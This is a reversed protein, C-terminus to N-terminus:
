KNNGMMESLLLKKREQFSIFKMHVRLMVKSLRLDRSKAKYSHVIFEYGKKLYGKKLIEDIDIPRIHICGHSVYLHKLKVKQGQATMAETDPSSHIFEGHIKEKGKDLKKNNNRDKYYFFTLHGFDNFVWKDPLIRKGYLDDYYDMIETKTVNSYKSLLSWKGRVKIYLKGRREKLKSGWPVASWAPYRSSSHAWSGFIRFKGSDTPTMMFGDSGMQSKSPGGAAMLSNVIVKKLGMPDVYNFGNMGMGQYMNMSDRYGLPDTQLFRGMTPDFHRSRYYYLGREKEFRRGQFMYENDISSKAIVDGSNNKITPLGYLGYSYREIIEGESNTIATISGIENTHYNYSNEIATGDANYKDMRLVEDIGNGYIFQKTVKDNNDREEIVQNGSYFYRTINGSSTKEIRRGMADYKYSTTSGNESVSVMQNRYNYTYSLGAQATTNGNLDYSLGYGDFSTYQNLKKSDGTMKPEIKTIPANSVKSTLEKINDVKDFKVTRKKTFTTPSTSNDANFTVNKIRNLADYSYNDFIDGLHEKKKKLYEIYLNFLYLQLLFM